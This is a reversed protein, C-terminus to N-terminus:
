KGLLVMPILKKYPVYGEIKEGNSKFLSPTGTVGVENGLAYGKDVMSASQCDGSPLVGKELGEVINMAKAKDKACWVRKLDKYGPGAKGGRPYPLYQITIGAKQLEPVEKHLKKCYPCSTDTFVNLVAKQEGIAPFIAKDELSVKDILAKSTKQNEIKTLNEGTKLDILSGIFIYRGDATVYGQNNGFRTQYIGDVETKVPTSFGNKGLRQALWYGVQPNSAVANDESVASITPLDGPENRSEWGAYIKDPWKSQFYAIVAEQDSDSLKDKFPPMTGGLKAGGDQITQKLLEMGHHWAHASGNLPPPPYVGNSDTKKWDATGEANPQHCSACNQQFLIAGKEVTAQDYWRAQLTAATFISATAIWLLIIKKTNMGKTKM